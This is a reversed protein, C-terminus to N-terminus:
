AGSSKDRKKKKKEKTSGAQQAKFQKGTPSAQVVGLDRRGGSTLKCSASGEM